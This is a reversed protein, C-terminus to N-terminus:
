WACGAQAAGARRTTRGRGCGAPRSSRRRPPGRRRGRGRALCGGTSGRSGLRGWLARDARCLPMFLAPAPTGPWTAAERLGTPGQKAPRSTWSRGSRAGSGYRAWQQPPFGSPRPQLRRRALTLRQPERDHAPGRRQGDHHRGSVAVRLPSTGQERCRSQRGPRAPYRPGAQPARDGAGARAGAGGAPPVVAPLGPSRCVAASGPWEGRGGAVRYRGKPTEERTM